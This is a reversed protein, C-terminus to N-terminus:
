EIVGAAKGGAYAVAGAGTAAGAGKVASKIFERAAWAIAVKWVIGGSVADIEDVSLERVCSGQASIDIRDM